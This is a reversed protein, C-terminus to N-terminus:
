RFNDWDEGFTFADARKERDRDAQTKSDEEAKNKNDQLEPKDLAAGMGIIDNNDKQKQSEVFIKRFVDTLNGKEKEVKKDNAKSLTDSHIEKKNVQQSNSQSKKPAVYIKELDKDKWIEPQHPKTKFDTVPTVENKQPELQKINKQNKSNPINESSNNQNNKARSKGFKKENETWNRVKVQGIAGRKKIERVSPTNPINSFGNNSELLEIVASDMFMYFISAIGLAFFIQFFWSWSLFLFLIPLSSIFVVLSGLLNFLVFAKLTQDYRVNEDFPNIKGYLVSSILSFFIPISLIAGSVGALFPLPQPIPLLDILHPLEGFLFVFLASIGIFWVFPILLTHTWNVFRDSLEDLM